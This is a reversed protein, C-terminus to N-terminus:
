PAENPHTDGARPIRWDSSVGIGVPGRDISSIAIIAEILQTPPMIVEIIEPHIASWIPLFIVTMM